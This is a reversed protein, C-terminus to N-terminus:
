TGSAFKSNDGDRMKGMFANISTLIENTKMYIIAGLAYYDSYVTICPLIIIYRVYSRNCSCLAILCLIKIFKHAVPELIKMAVSIDEQAVDQLVNITM